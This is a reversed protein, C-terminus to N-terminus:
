GDESAASKVHREKAALCEDLSLSEHLGLAWEAKYQAYWIVDSKVRVLEITLRPFALLSTVHGQYDRLLRIARWLPVIVTPYWKGYGDHYVYAYVRGSEPCILAAEEQEAVWFMRVPEFDEKSRRNQFLSRSKTFKM